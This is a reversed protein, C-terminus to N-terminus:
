FPEDTDIDEQSQAEEDVARYRRLWAELEDASKVPLIMRVSGRLRLRADVQRVDITKGDLTDILGLARLHRLLAEYQVIGLDRDKGTITRYEERVEGITVVPDSALSLQEIREEYLKRLVVIMLSEDLRYRARCYSFDSVVQFIRHYDDHLLSFGVLRLLAEFVPQHRHVFYYDDKDADADQYLFTQGLLRNMVRPVDRGAKETLGASELLSDTDLSM